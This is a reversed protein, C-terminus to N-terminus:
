AGRGGVTAAEAVQHRADGGPLDADHETELDRPQGAVVVVPALQQLHRVNGVRQNEVLGAHVVRAIAAVLQQQVDLAGDALELQLADLRAQDAPLAALRRAALQADRQRDPQGVILIPLHPEVAVPLDDLRDPQHELREPVLARRHRRRFPEPGLAQPQRRPRPHTRRAALQAPAQGVVAAETANELIRTVRPSEGVAARGLAALGVAAQLMRRHGALLPLHADRVQVRAEDGPLLVAAVLLGESAVGLGERRQFAAPRRRPLPGRQQLRQHDAAAAPLTHRHM